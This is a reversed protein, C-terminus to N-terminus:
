YPILAYSYISTSNLCNIRIVIDIQDNNKLQNLTELCHDTLYYKRDLATSIV